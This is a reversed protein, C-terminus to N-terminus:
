FFAPYMVARRMRIVLGTWQLPRNEAATANTLCIFITQLVFTLFSYRRDSLVSHLAAFCCCSHRCREMPIEVATQYQVQVFPM